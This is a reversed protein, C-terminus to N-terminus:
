FASQLGHFMSLTGYKEYKVLFGKLGFLAFISVKTAGLCETGMKTADNLVGSLKVLLRKM